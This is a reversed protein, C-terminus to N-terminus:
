GLARLVRDLDEPIDKSFSMPEGTGPHDFSLQSAHLFQRDLGTFIGDPDRKKTVRGGYVQDGVVPVGISQVHVRIQHTRGTQLECELLTVEISGPNYTKIVRFKTIAEKGSSVISFKKRNTQSRGIPADIIGERPGPRGWVLCKYLRKVQRSALQGVLSEYAEHTRAVVILGSTDKDLRHVIGPRGPEFVGRTVLEGIDPFRALLGHALTVAENGSGPHVVLGAPKNVVVVQSDEFLVDIELNEDPALGSNEKNAIRIAIRDGVSVLHSPSSVSCSNLQVRTSAILGAVEARSIGTLTSITKDIRVRHLMSPVELELREENM